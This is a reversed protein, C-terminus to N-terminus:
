SRRFVKGRVPLTLSVDTISPLARPGDLRRGRRRKSRWRQTQNKVKGARALSGHVKGGRLTITVNLSASTLSSVIVDIALPAGVSYLCLEFAPLNVLQPSTMKLGQKPVVHGVRAGVRDM